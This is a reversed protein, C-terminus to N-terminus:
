KLLMMKKVSMFEGAKLQYFYVGSTLASANFEVSYNGPIKEENVLTTVEEGLLNFLTLRVKSANPISYKITTNPNFPNPYNQSLSYKSPLIEKECTINTVLDNDYWYQIASAYNKLETISNINSYGGRILLAIVVEQTDNQAMNFPGSTLIFRRDNPTPGGPWGPGEYWGTGAVPDGSLCFHTPLNTNPDIIPDGSRFLGQMCNYYQVSGNYNGLEPDSYVTNPQNIFLM